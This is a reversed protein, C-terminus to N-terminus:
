SASFIPNLSPGPPKAFAGFVGQEAVEAAAAYAAGYAV